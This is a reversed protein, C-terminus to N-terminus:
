RGFREAFEAMTMKLLDEEKVYREKLRMEFYPAYEKMLLDKTKNKEELLTRIIRRMSRHSDILSEVNRDDLWNMEEFYEELMKDM